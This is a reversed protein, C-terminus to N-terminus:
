LEFCESAIWKWTQVEMPSDPQQRHPRFLFALHSSAMFLKSNSLEMSWIGGGVGGVQWEKFLFCLSCHSLFPDAHHICTGQGPLFFGTIEAAVPPCHTPLIDGFSFISNTARLPCVCVGLTTNEATIVIIFIFIIFIFDNVLTLKTIFCQLWFM